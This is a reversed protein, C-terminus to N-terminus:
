KEKKVFQKRVGALLGLWLTLLGLLNVFMSYGIDKPPTL